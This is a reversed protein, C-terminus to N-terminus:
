EIISRCITLGLGVGQQNIHMSDELRGFIKFLSTKDEEKIGVGTDEVGIEVEIKEDQDV